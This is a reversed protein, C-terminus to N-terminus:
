MDVSMGSQVKARGVFRTPAGIAPTPSKGSMSETFSNYTKHAGVYSRLRDSDGAADHLSGQIATTLRASQPGSMASNLQSVRDKGAPFRLGPDQKMAERMILDAANNAADRQSVTMKPTASPQRSPTAMRRPSDGEGIVMPRRGNQEAAMQERLLAGMAGRAQVPDTIRNGHPSSIGQPTKAGAVPRTASPTTSAAGLPMGVSRVRDAGIPMGPQPVRPQGAVPQWVAPALDPRKANHIEVGAAGKDRFFLQAGNQTRIEVDGRQPRFPETRSPTAPQPQPVEPRDQRIAPVQSVSQVRMRTLLDGEGVKPFKTDPKIEVFRPKSAPENMNYVAFVNAKEGGTELVGQRYVYRESGDRGATVEIDGPRLEFGQPHSPSSSAAPTFTSDPLPTSPQPPTITQQAVKLVREQQTVQPRAPAQPTPTPTPTAPQAAPTQARPPERRPTGVGIGEGIQSLEPIGSSALIKVTDLFGPRLRAADKGSVVEIGKLSEYGRTVADSVLKPDAKALDRLRTLESRAPARGFSEDRSPAIRATYSAPDAAEKTWTTMIALREAAAELQETSPNSAAM